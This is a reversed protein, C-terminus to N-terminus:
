INLVIVFCPEDALRSLVDPFRDTKRIIPFAKLPEDGPHLQPQRFAFVNANAHFRGTM